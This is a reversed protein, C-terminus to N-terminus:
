IQQIIIVWLIFEKLIQYKIASLAIALSREEMEVDSLSYRKALEERALAQTESILDDADVM